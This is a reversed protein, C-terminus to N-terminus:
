APGAQQKINKATDLIPELGVQVAITNIESKLQNFEEKRAEIKATLKGLENAKMLMVDLTKRLTDLSKIFQGLDSQQVAANPQYHPDRQQDNVLNEM